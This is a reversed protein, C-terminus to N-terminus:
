CITATNVFMLFYFTCYVSFFKNLFNLFYYCISFTQHLAVRYCYWKQGCYPERTLGDLGRLRLFYENMYLVRQFLQNHSQDDTFKFWFMFQQSAKFCLNLKNMLRNTQRWKDWSNKHRNEASKQIKSGSRTPRYSSTWKWPSEKGCLGSGALGCSPPRLERAKAAMLLVLKGHGSQETMNQLFPFLLFDATM